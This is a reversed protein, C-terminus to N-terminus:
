AKAEAAKRVKAAFATRRDAISRRTSKRGSVQPGGEQGVLQLLVLDSADGLRHKDLKVIRTYGGPRDKFLPAVNKFIHEILRPAKRLEGYRNFEIENAAPLEWFQSTKRAEKVNPDAIWAFVKRDTLKSTVERRNALSKTKAMTIIKEVYRQVAKAKPLTTEIQGHEFLGAALNRLMARRHDSKVCLQKGTIRHRM